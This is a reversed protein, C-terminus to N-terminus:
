AVGGGPAPTPKDDGDFDLPRETSDESLEVLKKEAEDLLTRCAKLHEMGVKYRALADELSLEDGELDEVVAELAGLRQEFSLPKSGKSSRSKKKAAM